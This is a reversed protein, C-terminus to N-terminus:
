KVFKLEIFKTPQHLTNLMRAFSVQTGSSPRTRSLNFGMNGYKGIDKLPLRIEISWYDEYKKVASECTSEWVRSRSRGSNYCSQDLLVNNTNIIFHYYQIQQGAPSIFLEINDDLWVQDDHKIINATVTSMNPEYCKIGIYLNNDDYALYGTTGESVPKLNIDRFPRINVTTTSKWEEDSIIGDIVYTRTTSRVEMTRVWHSPVTSLGNPVLQYSVTKYFGTEPITSVSFEREEHCGGSYEERGNHREDIYWNPNYGTLTDTSALAHTSDPTLDYFKSDIHDDYVEFYRYGALPIDALDCTTVNTVNRKKVLSNSHSHGSLYLIVRNMSNKDLVTQLDFGEGGLRDTMGRNGGRSFYVPFHTAVITFSSPYQKLKNDIWNVTDDASTHRFTALIFVTNKYTFDYRWTDTGFVRCYRTKDWDALADGSYEYDHNGGIFRVPCNLKETLKKFKALSGIDGRNTLDGTIIIFDPINHNKQTNIIETFLNFNDTNQLFWSSKITDTDIIHTDSIHAFTYKPKTETANLPQSSSILSIIILLVLM